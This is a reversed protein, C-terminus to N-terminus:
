QVPIRGLDAGPQIRAFASSVWGVIGNYSIRWWTSSANRAVVDATAGGPLTGLIAGSTSPGGRINMALISRVTYGTTQVQTPASGSTVPVNQGNNVQV